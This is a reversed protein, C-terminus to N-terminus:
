TKALILAEKPITECTTKSRGRKYGAQGMQESRGKHAHTPAGARPIKAGNAANQPQHSIPERQQSMADVRGCAFVIANKGNGSWVGPASLALPFPRAIATNESYGRARV